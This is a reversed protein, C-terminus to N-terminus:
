SFGGRPRSSLIHVALCRQFPTLEPQRRRFLARFLRVWVSAPTKEPAVDDDVPDIKAM